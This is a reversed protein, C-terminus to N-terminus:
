REAFKITDANMSFSWVWEKATALSIISLLVDAWQFLATASLSHRKSIDVFMTHQALFKSKSTDAILPRM